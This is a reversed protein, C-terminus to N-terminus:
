PWSHSNDYTLLLLKQSALLLHPCECSGNSLLFQIFNQLLHILESRQRPTKSLISPLFNEPLQNIIALCKRSFKFDQALLDLECQISLFSFLSSHRHYYFVYYITRLGKILLTQNSNDSFAFNINSGLNISFPTNAVLTPTSHSSAIVNILNDKVFLSAIINQIISLHFKSQMIAPLFSCMNSCILTNHFDLQNLDISSILGTYILLDCDFISSTHSEFRFESINANYSLSFSGETYPAQSRVSFLTTCYHQKLSSYLFLGIAGSGVVNVSSIKM